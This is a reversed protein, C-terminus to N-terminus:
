KRKRNLSAMHHAAAATASSVARKRKASSYCSSEEFTRRVSTAQDVLQQLIDDRSPLPPTSTAAEYDNM